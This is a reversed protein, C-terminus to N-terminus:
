SGAKDCASRRMPVALPAMTRRRQSGGTHSQQILCHLMVARIIRSASLSAQLSFRRGGSRAPRARAVVPVRGCGVVDDDRENLLLFKGMINRWGSYFIVGCRYHPLLHSEAVHLPSVRAETKNILRYFHPTECSKLNYLSWDLLTSVARGQFTDFWVQVNFASM